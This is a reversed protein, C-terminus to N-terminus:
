SAAGPATLAVPRLSSTAIFRCPRAPPAPGPRCRPRCGRRSREIDVAFAQEDRAVAQGHEAVTARDVHRGVACTLMPASPVTLALAAVALALETPRFSLSTVGSAGSFRPSRRGTGRGSPSRGASGVARRCSPASSPELTLGTSVMTAIIPRRAGTRPASSSAASRRPRRASPACSNDIFLAARAAWGLFPGGHHTRQPDRLGAHFGLLRLQVGDRVVEGVGRGVAELLRVHHELVQHVLVDALGPGVAGLLGRQGGPQLDAQARAGHGVHAAERLAVQLLAAVRQVQGHLAVAEELHLHGVAGGAVRAIARELDARLALQDGVVAVQQLGADGNGGGRLAHGDAGVARDADRQGPLRLRLRDPLDLEGAEDVRGAQFGLALVEERSSRMPRAPRRRAPCCRGRLRCCPKTSVELTLTTSSSTPM